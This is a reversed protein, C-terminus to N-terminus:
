RVDQGMGIPFLGFIVFAVITTPVADVTSGFWLQTGNRPVRRKIEQSVTLSYPNGDPGIISLVGTSRALPIYATGPFPAGALTIGFGQLQEGPYMGIVGEVLAGSGSAKFFSVSDIWVDLDEPVPTPWLSSQTVAPDINYPDFTQCHSASATHANQFSAYFWGSTGGARARRVGDNVSFVQRVDRDELLTEQAADTSNLGLQQDVAALAASDIRRAV